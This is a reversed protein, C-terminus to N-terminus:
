LVQRGYGGGNSSTQFVAHTILPYIIKMTHPKKRMPISMPHHSKVNKKEVRSESLVRFLVIIVSVTIKHLHCRAREANFIDAISVNVAFMNGIIIRRM